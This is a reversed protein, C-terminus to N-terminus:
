ATSATDISSTFPYSGMACKFILQPSNFVIKVVCSCITILLLPLVSLSLLLLLLLLKNKNAIM